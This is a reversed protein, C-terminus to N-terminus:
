DELGWAQKRLTKGDIDRDAWIGRVEAFIDNTEGKKQTSISSNVAEKTEPLLFDKTLPRVKVFSFNNLLEMLFLAKNERIDLLVQM